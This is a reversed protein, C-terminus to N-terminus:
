IQWIENIGVFEQDCWVLNFSCNVHGRMIGFCRSHMKHLCIIDVLHSYTNTIKKKPTINAVYQLKINAYTGIKLNLYTFDFTV